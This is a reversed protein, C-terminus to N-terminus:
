APSVGWALWVPSCQLERALQEITALKIAGRREYQAICSQKVGLRDALQQQSLQLQLRREAIREAVETPNSRFSTM